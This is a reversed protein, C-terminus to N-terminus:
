FGSQHPKLQFNSLPTHVSGSPHLVSNVLQLHTVAMTGFPKDKFQSFITLTSVPQKIRALTVHPHFPKNEKPINLTELLQDIRDRIEYIFPPAQIGAWLIRPHSEHPFASISDVTIDFAPITKVITEFKPILLTSTEEPVEGMFRITFHLTDTAWRIGKPSHAKGWAIASNLNDQIEKSLPISIFLRM